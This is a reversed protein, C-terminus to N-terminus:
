WGEEDKTDCSGNKGAHFVVVFCLLRSLQRQFSSTDDSDQVLAVRSPPCAVEVAFDTCEGAIYASVHLMTMM